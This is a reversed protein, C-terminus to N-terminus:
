ENSIGPRNPKLGIFGMVEAFADAQDHALKYEAANPEDGCDQLAEFVNQIEYKLDRLTVWDLENIGHTALNRTEAWYPHDSLTCYPM